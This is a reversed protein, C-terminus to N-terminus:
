GISVLRYKISSSTQGSNFNIFPINFKQFFISVNVKCKQPLINNYM